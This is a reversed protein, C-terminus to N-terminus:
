MAVSQVEGELGDLIPRLPGVAQEFLSIREGLREYIDEEVTDDYIYNWVLVKENKQGIRDIRGIRQEVVQPN